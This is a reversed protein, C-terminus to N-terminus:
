IMGHLLMTLRPAGTPLIWTKKDVVCTSVLTFCFGHNKRETRCQMKAYKDECKSGLAFAGSLNHSNQNHSFGSYGFQLGMGPNLYHLNLSRCDIDTPLIRVLFETIQTCSFKIGSISTVRMLKPLTILNLCSQAFIHSVWQKKHSSSASYQISKTIQVTIIEAFLCYMYTTQFIQQHVEIASTAIEFVRQQESYLHLQSTVVNKGAFKKKGVEASLVSCYHAPDLM